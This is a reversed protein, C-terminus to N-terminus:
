ATWTVFHLHEIVDEMGLTLITLAHQHLGYVRVILDMWSTAVNGLRGTFWRLTDWCPNSLIGRCVQDVSINNQPMGEANCM